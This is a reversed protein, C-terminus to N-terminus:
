RATILHELFHDRQEVFAQQAVVIRQDREATLTRSNSYVRATSAKRIASRARSLDGPQEDDDQHARTSRTCAVTNMPLQHRQVAPALRRGIAAASATTSRFWATTFWTCIILM